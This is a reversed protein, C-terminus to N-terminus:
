ERRSHRNKDSCSRRPTENLNSARKVSTLYESNMFISYKRFKTSRTGYIDAIPTYGDIIGDDGRLIEDIRRFEM